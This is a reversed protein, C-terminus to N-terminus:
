FEVLKKNLGFYAYAVKGRDGLSKEELTILKADRLEELRRRFTRYSVGKKYHNFIDKIQKGSHKKVLELIENQENNLESDQKIKFEQLRSVAKEVDDMTIKKSARAETIDGAEKLLFIGARVDNLEFTKKAILELCGKEFVNKVFAYELRQKLIDLTEDYNYPKFELKDAYLRSNLRADINNIWGKDNTIFILSRKFIDELFYYLISFDQLKDIEDLCLVISKKNLLLKVDKMLQDTAKYQIFKYDILNCIEIIEDSNNEVQKLVYKTALTKGIGPAGFIFLNRGNRGQELLKISNGIYAQQGERHLLIGPIFNYDLAADNLFISESSELFDKQM